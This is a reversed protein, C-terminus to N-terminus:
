TPHDTRIVIEPGDGIKTADITLDIRQLPAADPPLEVPHALGTGAIGTLRIPRDDSRVLVAVSHASEDARVALTQPSLSVPASAEHRVQHTQATGDAWVLRLRAAIAGPEARAPAEIRCAQESEIIASPLRRETPQSECVLSAVFPPGIEVGAVPPRGEAGQRRTIIRLQQSLPEGLRGRPTAAEVSAVEWSPHLDATLFLEIRRCDDRDTGILFQVRKRGAQYGPRFEVPVDVAGHAPISPPLPGISSCCPTSAVAEVLRIPSDTPNNLHFRHSLPRGDAVTPGLDDAVQSAVKLALIEAVEAEVSKTPPSVSFGIPGCGGIVAVLVLAAINRM